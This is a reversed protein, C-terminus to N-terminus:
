ALREELKRLAEEQVVVRAALLVDLVNVDDATCVSARPINRASLLINSDVGATIVLTKRGESAVKDLMQAFPKTKPSGFSLGDVVSLRENRLRESLAIRLAIRRVKKPVSQRYSRPRPGWVSGGGRFQPETCDGQRARGTGKQRFPKVGSGAVEGRKKTSHTGQRQANQLALVVQQILTENPELAFIADSAELAGLPAGNLDVKPVSAM